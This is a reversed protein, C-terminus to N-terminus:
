NFAMTVRRRKLPRFHRGRRKRRRHSTRAVRLPLWAAASPDRGSLPRTIKWPLMTGAPSQGGSTGCIFSSFLACVDSFHQRGRGIYVGQSACVGPIFIHTHTYLALVLHILAAPRYRCDNCAKTQCSFLM